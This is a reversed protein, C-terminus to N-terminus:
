ETWIISESALTDVEQLEPLDVALVRLEINLFSCSEDDDSDVGGFFCHEEIINNLERAKMENGTVFAVKLVRDEKSNNAAGADKPPILSAALGDVPRIMTLILVSLIVAVETAISIPRRRRM